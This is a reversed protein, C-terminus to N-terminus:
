RIKKRGFLRRNGDVYQKIKRGFYENAEEKGKGKEKRLQLDGFIKKKKQVRMGLERYRRGHLSKEVAAKIM